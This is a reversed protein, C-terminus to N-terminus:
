DVFSGHQHIPEHHPVGALAIFQSDGAASIETRHIADLLYAQSPFLQENELRVSGRIVYVLGRMNHPFEFLYTAGPLLSIDRYIINTHLRVPSGPGVITRELIDSSAV